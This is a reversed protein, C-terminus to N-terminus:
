GTERVAEVTYCANGTKDIGLERFNGDFNDGLLDKCLM